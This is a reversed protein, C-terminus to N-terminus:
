VRFVGRARGGSVTDPGLSTRPGSFQYLLSTEPTSAFFRAVTSRNMSDAKPRFVKLKSPQLSDTEHHAGLHKPTTSSSSSTFRKLPLGFMEQLLHFGPFPRYDM